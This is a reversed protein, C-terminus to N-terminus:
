KKSSYVILLNVLAESKAKALDKTVINIPCARIIVEHEFYTWEM